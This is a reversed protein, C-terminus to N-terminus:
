PISTTILETTAKGFADILFLRIMVTREDLQLKVAIQATELDIQRKELEGNDNVYEVIPQLPNKVYTRQLVVKNKDYQICEIDGVDSLPQKSSKDKLRGTTIVKNIFTAITKGNSDKSISYNLFLLKPEQENIVESAVQQAKMGCSFYGTFGLLLIMQFTLIDVKFRNMNRYLKFGEIGILHTTEM